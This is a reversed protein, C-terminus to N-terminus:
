DSDIDIFKSLYERLADDCVYVYTGEIARTLLVAYTNLVYGKIGEIDVGKKVKNDFFNDTNVKIKNDQKDFYLDPGIVVGAYNLDLGALTYISGMEREHSPDSVWGMTKKNWKISTGEIVIDFLSDDKKSVHKWPYGTCLRSLGFERNKEFLRNYMTNFSSFLVFEYNKFIKKQKIKQYLMDYIYPVYSRGAKVRQQSKLKVPRFGRYRDNVRQEFYVTDLESPSVSQKNDYFLVFSQGQNFIWDLEDCSTYDLGIRNCAAKFNKNYTFQNKINRLKHAEDCVIIDYKERTIDTPAKVDKKSLGKVSKFVEQIEHRMSPNPIIFAIKKDQFNKDSKLHYFLSTAVVTKGAGADGNVLIPRETFEAQHAHSEGSALVNVISNLASNQESNMETYPSYKYNSSNLILNFEKENVLEKEVLKPWFEDFRLEFINKRGYYINKQGDNGNLIIFKSDARMLKILIREYHKAPTEEFDKHTIVHMNKLKYQKKIKNVTHRRARDRVDASEGVYAHTGNELIYVAHYDNEFEWSDFNRKAFDYTVISIM